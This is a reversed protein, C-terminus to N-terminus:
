LLDGQYLYIKNRLKNGVLEAVSFEDDNYSLLYNGNKGIFDIEKGSFLDIAQQQNILLKPYSIVDFISSVYAEYNQEFDQLSIADEINFCGSKTRIICVTTAITGLANAIDRVIARVYTGASCHIKFLFTDEQEWKKAEISYITVDRPELAIEKNKRALDYAKVGNVSKSSYIPPVQKIKGVFQHLVSQVQELEVKKNCTQIVCGESDLTDTLVGFKGIAIYEKDKNLFYDFFRTAKGIAVPLVGTALPDLTGLHGVKQKTIRKVNSVIVSSSVGVPKIINVFGNVKSLKREYQKCYKRSHLM